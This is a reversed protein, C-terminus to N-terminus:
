KHTLVGLRNLESILQKGISQGTATSNANVVINFSNTSSVTSTSGTGALSAMPNMGTAIKSSAYRAAFSLDDSYDYFGKILMNMLNPIWKDSDKGAGEKTPSHWGLLNGIINAGAAAASALFGLQSKIGSILSKILNSGSTYLSFNFASKITTKLNNITNKISQVKDYVAKYMAAIATTVLNKATTWATTTTTKITNWASVVKTKITNVRGVADLYLSYIIGSITFKITNWVQKSHSALYLFNDITNAIMKGTWTNSDRNMDRVTILLNVGMMGLKQAVFDSMQSFYSKVNKLLDKTATKM